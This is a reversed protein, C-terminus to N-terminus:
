HGDAVGRDLVFARIEAAAEGLKLETNLAPDCRSIAQLGGYICALTSIHVHDPFEEWCDYNPQQWLAILYRCIVSVIPRLKHYFDQDNTLGIHETLGWLWTGYGDLQFDGWHGPVRGGDVAFRTPLYDPEEPKVGRAVKDLLAEAQGTYRSLTRFTWEYFRRSSDRQGARDMGYAILSGDRMWSAQYQSFTPSALYAGSAAQGQRIVEISKDWLIM